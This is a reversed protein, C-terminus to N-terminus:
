WFLVCILVDLSGLKKIVHKGKPIQHKLLRLKETLIDVDSITYKCHNELEPKKSTMGGELSSECSTEM